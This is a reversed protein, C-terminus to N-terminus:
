PSERWYGSWSKGGDIRALRSVLTRGTLNNAHSGKTPSHLKPYDPPLEPNKGRLRALALAFQQARVTALIGAITEAAETLLPLDAAPSASCIAIPAQRQQLLARLEVLDSSAPGGGDIIIVPVHEDIAGVPGHRLDASSFGEAFVGSIEKVKLAAELAVGYLIGRSVVILRDMGSWRLALANPTEEDAM